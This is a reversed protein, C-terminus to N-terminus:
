SSSTRLLMRKTCPTTRTTRSRACSSWPPSPPPAAPRASRARGVSRSSSRLPFPLVLSRPRQAARRPREGRAAAEARTHAQESRCARCLRLTTGGTMLQRTARARRLASVRPSGGGFPCWISQAAVRCLGTWSCRWRRLKCRQGCCCCCRSILVRLRHHPVCAHGDDPLLPQAVCRSCVAPCAVRCRVRPARVAARGNVLEATETFFADAKTAAMLKEVAGRVNGPIYGAEADIEPVLTATAILLVVLLVGMPAKSLQVLVDGKFTAGVAAVFGIMQRLAAPPDAGAAAGPM